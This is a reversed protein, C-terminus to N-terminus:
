QPPDLIFEGSQNTGLFYGEANTQGPLQLIVGNVKITPKTSGPYAFSGSIVGTTKNTKLTLENTNDSLNTITITFLNSERLTATFDAPWPQNPLIGGELSAQQNTFGSRYVATKSSNAANIWSLASANTITYGIFLNTGWLSGNGGYLNVYLPWYGDQSIVSSQSITTGDALSGALTVVGSSSVKVTGYSFGFPGANSDSTGPIVFTYQGEFNTAKVSSSFVNRFGNLAAITTGADSITGSVLQNAFDLQLTIALSPESRTAKSTIDAAGSLDFKGSFPVTEGSLDLSGSVSGSSTVNLLFSGSNTQRRLSNTPGFLGRYAGQAALFVNTEFSAELLLYSQNTFTYSASSSLVSYPQNTGGVWNVFVNKAKPVATVKYKNGVVPGTKPWASHQITGDGSTLLVLGNTPTNTPTYLGITTTVVNSSIMVIQDDPTNWGSLPAFSLRHPGASLDALTVGNGQEAGGDVQWLAGSSVAAVPLLTVSLSGFSPAGTTYIGTAITTEGNTITVSLNAPTNWNSITTFSVTHPGPSLNTVTAGSIQNSGGDVQWQANSSVVNTPMLTVTLAGSPGSGIMTYVGTATTTEGNTITVNLNAPTNWNSITTFSVTHSGVSLNSVTVGSENTTGDVEWMAGNTAAGAPEITVQLSGIQAEKVYLGSAYTIAGNTITVIQDAPTIWGSISTFSVTYNTASLNTMTSGSGNTTGNVEWMAGATNAGEPYITVLLDGYLASEGCEACPFTQISAVPGSGYTLGWGTAGSFYLISPLPDETFAVTSFNTSYDGEFCVYTLNSCFAFAAEGINTVSAPIIVSTLGSANFANMGINTVGNTMTVNTLSACGYFAGQSIDTVTNTVTYSGELGCPFQVLVTQNQGFLVGDVSSYDPNGAEVTINTLNTCLYFPNNGFNTVSTSITVSTLDNGGFARTGISAVSDPITVSTLGADLFAGQGIVTVTMGDANTTPIVVVTDTGTYKTLTLTDDTNTTYDFQAQVAAPLVWLLLGLLVPLYRKM